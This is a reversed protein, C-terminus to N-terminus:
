SKMNPVFSYTTEILINHIVQPHGHISSVHLLVVIILLLKIFPSNINQVQNQNTTHQHLAYFNEM